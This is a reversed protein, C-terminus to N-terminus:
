PMSGDPWTPRPSRAADASRTWSARVTLTLGGDPTTVADVLPPQPRDAGPVVVPVLACSAFATEAGGATLPVIRVFQVSRLGGPVRTSFHVMNDADTTGGTAGLFTFV